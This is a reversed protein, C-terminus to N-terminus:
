IFCLFAAVAAAAVSKKVHAFVLVHLFETGQASAIQRRPLTAAIGSFFFFSYASSKADSPELFGGVM